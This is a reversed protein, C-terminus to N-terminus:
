GHDNNLKEVLLLFADQSMAGSEHVMNAMSNRVSEWADYIGRDYEQELESSMGWKSVTPQERALVDAIKICDARNM